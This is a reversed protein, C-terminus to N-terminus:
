SRNPGVANDAGVGYDTRVALQDRVHMDRRLGRDAVAARDIWENREAGRRLGQAIATFECSKLDALAAGDSFLHGHVGAGNGPAPNGADAIATIEHTAAVHNWKTQDVALIGAKFAEVDDAHLAAFKRALPESGYTREILLQKVAGANKGLPQARHLRQRGFIRRDRFNQGKNAVALM